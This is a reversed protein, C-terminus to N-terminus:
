IKKKDANKVQMNAPDIFSHYDIINAEHFIFKGAPWLFAVCSQFYGPVVCGRWTLTDLRGGFMKFVVFVEYLYSINDMFIM